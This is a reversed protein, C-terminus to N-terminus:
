ASTRPFMPYQHPTRRGTRVPLFESRGSGPQSGDASHFPNTGNARSGWLNLGGSPYMAVAFLLITSSDYGYWMESRHSGEDRM